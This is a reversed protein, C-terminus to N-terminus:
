GGSLAKVAAGSAAGQHTVPTERSSPQAPSSVLGHLTRHCSTETFFGSRTHDQIDLVLALDSTHVLGIYVLEFPSAGDQSSPEVSSAAILNSDHCSDSAGVLTRCVQRVFPSFTPSISPTARHRGSCSTFSAGMAWITGLTHRGDVRFGISYAATFNTNLQTTVDKEDLNKKAGSVDVTVTLNCATQTACPESRRAFLTSFYTHNLM